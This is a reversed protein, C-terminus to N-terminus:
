PRKGVRRSSRAGVVDASIARRERRPRVPALAVAVNAIGAIGQSKHVTSPKDISIRRLKVLPVAILWSDLDNVQM